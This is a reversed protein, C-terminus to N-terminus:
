ACKVIITRATSGSCIQRCRAIWVAPHCHKDHTDQRIQPSSFGRLRQNAAARERAGCIRKAGCKWSCTLVQILDLFELSHSSQTRSADSSTINVPVYAIDTTSTIPATEVPKAAEASATTSTSEPIQATVPQTVPASVPESPPLVLASSTAPEPSAPLAEAAPAIAPPKDLSATPTDPVPDSPSTVTINPAIAPEGGSSSSLRSSTHALVPPRKPEERARRAPLLPRGMRKREEVMTNDM